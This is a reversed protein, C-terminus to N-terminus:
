FNIIYDNDPTRTLNYVREILYEDLQIDEFKNNMFEYLTNNIKQKVEKIGLNSDPVIIIIPPQYKGAVYDVNNFSEKFIDLLEDPGNERIENSLINRNNYINEFNLM